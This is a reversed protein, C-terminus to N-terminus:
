GSSTKIIVFFYIDTSQCNSETMIKPEFFIGDYRVSTIKILVRLPVLGRIKVGFPVVIVGTVKIDSGGRGGSANKKYAVQASIPM